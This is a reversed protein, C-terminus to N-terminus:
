PAMGINVLRKRINMYIDELKINWKHVRLCWRIECHLWLSLSELVVRSDSVEWATKENNFFSINVFM